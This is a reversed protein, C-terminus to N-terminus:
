QGATPIRRILSIVTATGFVWIQCPLGSTALTTDIEVSIANEPIPLQFYQLGGADLTLNTFLQDSFNTPNYYANTDWQESRTSVIFAGPAVVDPKFRGFKGEFGIGVNGESSFDAVQFNNM